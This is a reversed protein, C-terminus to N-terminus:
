NGRRVASTGVRYRCFVSTICVPGNAALDSNVLPARLSEPVTPDFTLATQFNVERILDAIWRATGQTSRM